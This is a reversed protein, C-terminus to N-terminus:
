LFIEHTSFIYSIFSKKLCSSVFSIHEHGIGTSSILGIVHTNPRSSMFKTVKRHLAVCFKKQARYLYDERRSFFDFNKLCDSSKM